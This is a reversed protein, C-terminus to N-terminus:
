GELAEFRDLTLEECTKKAEEPPRGCDLVPVTRAVSVDAEYAGRRGDPAEFDLRVRTTGSDAGEELVSGRRAHDLWEWGHRAFAEREAAQLPASGMGSSGRYHGGLDAVPASRGVVAELVGDDLYAWFQGEPFVIATPAYRHGGTHSTRWVRIEADGEELVGSGELARFVQIGSKGCCTDRKGHTCVLVDRVDRAEADEVRAREVEPSREGALVDRCLRGADDLPVRFEERSFERFWGEPRRYHVVTVDDGVRDKPAVLGQLRYPSGRRASEELAPRLADFAPLESFERPWPLPHEVLLFGDYSGASGVPDLAQERSYLSCRFRRDAGAM